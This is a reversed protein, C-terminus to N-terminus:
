GGGLSTAGLSSMLPSMIGEDHPEGDKSPKRQGRLISEPVDPDVECLVECGLETNRFGM